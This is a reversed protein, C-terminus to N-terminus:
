PFVRERDPLAEVAAADYDFPTFARRDAETAHSDLADANVIYTNPAKTVGTCDTRKNHVIKIYGKSELGGLAKLLTVKNFPLPSPHNEGRGRSPAACMYQLPVTIRDKGNCLTHVYLFLLTSLEPPTLGVLGHEVLGRLRRANQALLRHGQLSVVESM